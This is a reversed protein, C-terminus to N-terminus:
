LSHSPRLLSVIADPIMEMHLLQFDHKFGSAKSCAYLEPIRAPCSEAKCVQRALKMHAAELHFPDESELSFKVCSAGYAFVVGCSGRGIEEPKVSPLKVNLRKVLSKRLLEYDQNLSEKRQDQQQWMAHLRAQEELPLKEISGARNRNHELEIQAWEARLSQRAKTVIQREREAQLRLYNVTAEASIPTARLQSSLANKANENAMSNVSHEHRPPASKGRISQLKAQQGLDVGRARGRPEVSEPHGTHSNRRLRFGPGFAADRVAPSARYSSM